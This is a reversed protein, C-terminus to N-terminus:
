LSAFLVLLLGILLGLLVYGAIAGAVTCTAIILLALPNVNV